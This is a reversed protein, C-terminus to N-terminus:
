GEPLTRGMRREIAENDRINQEQREIAQTAESMLDMPDFETAVKVTGQELATIRRQQELVIETLQIIQKVLRIEQAEIM